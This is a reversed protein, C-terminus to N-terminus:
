LPKLLSKKMMKDKYRKEQQDLDTNVAWKDLSNSPNLSDRLTDRLTDRSVYTPNLQSKKLQENQAFLLEMEEKMAVLQTEINQFRSLADQFSASKDVLMPVHDPNVADQQLRHLKQQDEKIKKCQQNLWLFMLILVGTVFLTLLVSPNINKM